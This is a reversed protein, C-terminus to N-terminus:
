RTGRTYNIFMKKKKKNYLYRIKGWFNVQQFIHSKLLFFFRNLYITLDIRINEVFISSFLYIIGTPYIYVAM